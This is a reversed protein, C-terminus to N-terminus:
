VAAACESQHAAAQSLAARGALARGLKRDWGYVDPLFNLQGDAGVFVTSHIVFLPVTRPLAVRRTEATAIAEDVQGPSWGLLLSALARPQELRMCGHSLTRVERQFASKSPTDHLYVGFPSPLDFKLQGLANLPGPRQQLGSGTRVIGERQLYGPERAARPLVENAAIESPINWPPNFVVAELRSAFIPTKTSPKGVVARMTLVPADDRYLTATARATDVEVREAPLSRPLWRLRELNSSIQELRDAAPVNLAQRTAPGLV